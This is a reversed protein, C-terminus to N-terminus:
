RVDYVWLVHYIGISFAWCKSAITVLPDSWSKLSLFLTFLSRCCQIYSPSGHYQVVKMLSFLNHVTYSVNRAPNMSTVRHLLLGVQQELILNVLSIHRVSFKFINRAIWATPADIKYVVVQPVQDHLAIQELSPKGSSNIQSLWWDLFNWSFHKVHMRKNHAFCKIAGEEQSCQLM